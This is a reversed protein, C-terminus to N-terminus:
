DVDEREILNEGDVKMTRNWTTNYRLLKKTKLEAIWFALLGVVTTGVGIALGTGGPLLFPISFGFFIIAGACTLAILRMTDRRGIDLRDCEM